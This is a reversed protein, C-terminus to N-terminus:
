IDVTVETSDRRSGNGEHPNEIVDNDFAQELDNVKGVVYLTPDIVGYNVQLIVRYLMINDALVQM